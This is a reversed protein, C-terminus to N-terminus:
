KSGLSISPLTRIACVWMAEVPRPHMVTPQRRGRDLRARAGEREMARTEAEGPRRRRQQDRRRKALLTLVGAALLMYGLLMWRRRFSGACWFLIVVVALCFSASIYIATKPASLFYQRM